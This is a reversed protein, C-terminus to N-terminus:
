KSASKMQYITENETYKRTAGGIKEFYTKKNIM